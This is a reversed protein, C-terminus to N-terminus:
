ADLREDSLALPEATVVRVDSGPYLRDYFVALNEGIVVGDVGTETELAASRYRIAEYGDERAAAAVEQCRAYDDGALDAAAIGWADCTAQDTLDLVRGFRADLTLMVRPSLASVQVGALGACRRLEAVATDPALAVYLM